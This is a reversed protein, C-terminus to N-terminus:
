KKFIRVTQILLGATAIGILITDRNEKVWKGLKGHKEEVEKPQVIPVRPQIKVGSIM